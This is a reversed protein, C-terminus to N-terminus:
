LNCLNVKIEGNSKEIGKVESNEVVVKQVPSQLLIRNGTKLIFDHMREYIMGTGHNPYAFQDVLTHHTTKKILSFANVVAEM